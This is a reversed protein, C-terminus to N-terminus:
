RGVGRGAGPSARRPSAFRAWAEDRCRRLGHRRATAVSSRRDCVEPKSTHPDRPYPRPRWTRRPLVEAQSTSSAHHGTGRRAGPRRLPSWNGHPRRSQPAQRARTVPQRILVHHGQDVGGIRPASPMYAPEGVSVRRGAITSMGSARVGTARKCGKRAGIGVGLEATRCCGRAPQECSAADPGDARGGGASSDGFEQAGKERSARTRRRRRSAPRGPVGTRGRSWAAACNAARCDRRHRCAPVSRSTAMNSRTLRQCASASTPRTARAVDDHELVRPGGQDPRELVGARGHDPAARRHRSGSVRICRAHSSSSGRRCPASARIKM